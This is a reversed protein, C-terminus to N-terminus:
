AIREVLQKLVDEEAPCDAKKLGILAVEYGDMRIVSGACELGPLATPIVVDAAETTPTSFHDLCIVDVNRLNRMLSQPLVSFPDSGIILVCDPLGNRVQELFSFQRGHSVGAAFSVQNIYGSQKFLTQNFGRLNSEAVMPIVALRTGQSFTQVMREFLSFDSDLAHNLGSGCFITCFRSNEVMERFAESTEMGEQAEGLVARMFDADGGPKIKFASGCMLSMETDRVDVCSLTVKPFWGAPDYATYAYYTFKSIHRPHTHLPNSGWYILLDANDRVESLSCTPLNGRLIKEILTGYSFSSADDITASLKQALEIAVTQAELTSSDLGFVLCAKAKSLLHAAEDVAEKLSASRGGILSTARRERNAGSQLYAAGRACVNEIKGLRAGDIEILIDDCLCGCGTCVLGQSTM